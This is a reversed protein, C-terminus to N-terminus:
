SRKTLNFHIVKERLLTAEGIYGETEIAVTQSHENKFLDKESFKQKLPKKASAKAKAPKYEFVSDEDQKILDEGERRVIDERIATWSDALDFAELGILGDVGLLAAGVQWDVKPVSRLVEEISKSFTEMNKALDDVTPSTYDEMAGFRGSIDSMDERRTGVSASAANVQMSFNRVSSWVNSQINSDMTISGGLINQEVERPVIGGGKFEAGSSIPRSAHVCVVKIRATEKPMVVRSVVVAREQTKGKFIEGARIFLPKDGNNTVLTLDIQGTDEIKVKDAEALTVYERQEELKRIIPLIATLSNKNYRWPKGFSFDEEEKVIAEIFKQIDM